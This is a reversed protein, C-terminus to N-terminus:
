QTRQCRLTVKPGWIRGSFTSGDSLGAQSSWSATCGYCDAPVYYDPEEPDSSALSGDYEYNGTKGSDLDIVTMYQGDYSGRAFIVRVKGERKGDSCSYVISGGASAFDASLIFLAFFLFSLTKM